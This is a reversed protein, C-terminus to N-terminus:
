TGGDRRAEIQRLAHTDARAEAIMRDREMTAKMEALLKGTDIKPAPPPPPEPPTNYRDYWALVRSRYCPLADLFDFLVQIAEDERDRVAADESPKPPYRDELIDRVLRHLRVLSDFDVPHLSAACRPTQDATDICRKHRRCQRAACIRPFRLENICGRALVASAHEASIQVPPM